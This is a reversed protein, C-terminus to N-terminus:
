FERPMFRDRWGSDPEITAETLSLLKQEQKALKQSLNQRRDRERNEASRSILNSQNAERPYRCSYRDFAGFSGLDVFRSEILNNLGSDFRGINHRTNQIQGYASAAACALMRQQHTASRRQSQPGNLCNTSGM